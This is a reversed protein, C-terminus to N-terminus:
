LIPVQSPRQRHLQLWDSNEILAQRGMEVLLDNAKIDSNGQIIRLLQKECLAYYNGIRLYRKSQEDYSQFESYLKITPVIWFLVGYTAIFSNLVYDRWDAPLSDFITLHFILTASVVIIGFIFSLRMKFALEDNKQKNLIYKGKNSLNDGIFYNRQDKIWREQIFDLQLKRTTLRPSVPLEQSQIVLRIWELEDQQDRLFHDAVNASVGSIHWFFQIRLAEALARYDLYKFELRQKQIHQYFLCALVGVSITIALLSWKVFVGYAQECVIVILALIILRLFDAHRKVQAAQSMSDSIAFLKAISQAQKDLSDFQFDKGLLYSLSEKIKNINGTSNYFQKVDSNFDDIQKLTAQWNEQLKISIEPKNNSYIDPWLVSVNVEKSLSSQTSRRTSFHIVKGYSPFVLSGINPSFTPPIGSLFYRVVQSTGGAKETSDGDWLAMLVHSYRALYVGLHEYCDNRTSTNSNASNPLTEVWKASKLLQTFEQKSEVTEFDNCYEEQPMPLVASFAIDLEIAVQVVLRDAGEALGSLLLLPTNSFERQLAQLQDSILRRLEAEDEVFIDRHGTIGVIMSINNKTSDKYQM